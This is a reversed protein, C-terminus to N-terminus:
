VCVCVFVCLLLKFPLSSATQNAHCLLGNIQSVVTICTLQCCDPGILLSPAAAKLSQRSRQNSLHLAPHAWLATSTLSLLNNMNSKLKSWVKCGQAAPHHIGLRVVKPVSNIQALSTTCFSFFIYWCLVKPILVTAIKKKEREAHM